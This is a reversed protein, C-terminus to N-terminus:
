DGLECAKFIALSRCGKFRKGCSGQSVFVLLSVNVRPMRRLRWFLGIAFEGGFGSEISSLRDFGLTKVGKGRPDGNKDKISYAYAAEPISSSIETALDVMGKIVVLSRLADARGNAPGVM